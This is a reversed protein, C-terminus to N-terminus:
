RSLLLVPYLREVTCASILVYDNVVGKM